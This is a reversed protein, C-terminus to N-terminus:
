QQGGKPGRPRERRLQGERVLRRGAVLWAHLEEARVSLSQDGRRKVISIFSGEVKRGVIAGHVLFPQTSPDQPPIHVYGIALQSGRILVRRVTLGVVPPYVRTDIIMRARHPSFGEPRIGDVRTITEVGEAKKTAAGVVIVGGGANALRAVDQALEIKGFDTDLHWPQSKAELWESEVAGILGSPYGAEIINMVARPDIGAALEHVATGIEAGLALLDTALASRRRFSIDIAWTVGSANEWLREISVIRAKRRGATTSALDTIRQESTIADLIAVVRVRVGLRGALIEAEIIPPIDDDLGAFEEPSASTVEFRAGDDDTAWESRGGQYEYRRLLRVAVDRLDALRVGDLLWPTVVIREGSVYVDVNSAPFNLYFYDDRSRQIIRISM